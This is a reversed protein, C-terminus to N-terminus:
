LQKLSNVAGSWAIRCWRNIEAASVENLEAQEEVSTIGKWIKFVAKLKRRGEVVDQPLKGKHPM